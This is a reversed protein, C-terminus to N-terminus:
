PAPCAVYVIFSGGRWEETLAVGRAQLLERFLESKEDNVLFLYRFRAPLAAPGLREPLIRIPTHAKMYWEVQDTVPERVTVLPLRPTEARDLWSAAPRYDRASLGVNVVPARGLRQALPKYTTTVVAYVLLAAVLAAAGARSRVLAAAGVGLAAAWGPLLVILNHAMLVRLELPVLLALFLLPVFVFSVVLGRAALPPPVAQHDGLRRDLVPWVLVIAGAVGLGVWALLVVRFIIELQNAIFESAYGAQQVNWVLPLLRSPVLFWSVAFGVLAAGIAAAGVWRPFPGVRPPASVPLSRGGPRLGVAVVALLLLGCLTGAGWTPSYVGVAKATAQALAFPTVPSLHRWPTQLQHRVVVLWFCCVVAALLLTLLARAASRRGGGGCRLHWLCVAAHTALAVSGFYHTMATVVALGFYAAHDWWRGRTFAALFALHSAAVLSVLLSYPRAEQAWAVHLPNIVLYGAAVLGAVGGGLRAALLGTLVISLASFIVSLARVPAEDTGVLATWFLFALNSLPPHNTHLGDRAMLKGIALPSTGQLTVAYLEDEAYCRAGLSPARLLLAFLLLVLLGAWRARPSAGAPRAVSAGVATSPARPAQSSPQTERSDCIATLFLM